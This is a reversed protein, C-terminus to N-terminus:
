VISRSVTIIRSEFNSISIRYQINFRRITSNLTSNSALNSTVVARPVGRVHKKGCTSACKVSIVGKGELLTYVEGEYYDGNVVVRVAHMSACPDSYLDDAKGEVGNYLAVIPYTTTRYRNEGPVIGLRRVVLARM